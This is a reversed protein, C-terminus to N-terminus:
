DRGAEKFDQCCTTEHGCDCYAGDPRKAFLGKGCPPLGDTRDTPCQCKKVMAVAVDREDWAIAVVAVADGERRIAEACEDAEASLMKFNTEGVKWGRKECNSQAIKHKQARERCVQACRERETRVLAKDERERTMNCAAAYIDM